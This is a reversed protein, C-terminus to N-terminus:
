TRGHEPMGGLTAAGTLGRRRATGTAGAASAVCCGGALRDSKGPMPLHPLQVPPVDHAQDQHATLPQPPDRRTDGAAGVLDYHARRVTPGRRSARPSAAAVVDWLPDSRGLHPALAAVAQLRRQLDPPQSRDVDGEAATGRSVDALEALQSPRAYRRGDDRLPTAGSWSM